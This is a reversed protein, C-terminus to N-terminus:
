VVKSIIGRRSQRSPAFRPKRSLKSEIGIFKGRRRSQPM